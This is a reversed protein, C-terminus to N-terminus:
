CGLDGKLLKATEVVSTVGNNDFDIFTVEVVPLVMMSPDIAAFPDESCYFSHITEAHHLHHQILSYDCHLRHDLLSEKRPGVDCRVSPHCVVVEVLPM